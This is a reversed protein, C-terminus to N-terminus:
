DLGLFLSVGFFVCLLVSIILTESTVVTIATIITVTLSGVFYAKLIFTSFSVAVQRLTLINLKRHLLDVLFFRIISSNLWIVFPPRDDCLMELFIVEFNVLILAEYLSVRTLGTGGALLSFNAEIVAKVLSEAVRCDTSVHELNLVM